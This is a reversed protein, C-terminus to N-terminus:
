YWEGRFYIATGIKAIQFMCLQIRSGQFHDLIKLLNNGSNNITNGLVFYIGRCMRVGAVDENYTTTHM